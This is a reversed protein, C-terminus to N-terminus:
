ESAVAICGVRQASVRVEVPWNMDPDDDNGAWAVLKWGDEGDNRLWLAACDANHQWETGLEVLEGPESLDARVILGTDTQMQATDFYPLWSEALDAILQLDGKIM